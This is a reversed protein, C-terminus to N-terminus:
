KAQKSTVKIQKSTASIAGAINSAAVTCTYKGAAKARLSSSTGAIKKGNRKWSIKVAKAEQFFRAELRDSSLTFSCRLVAHKSKTMKTAPAKAFSPAAILALSAEQGPLKTVGGVTYPTQHTVINSCNFTGNAGATAMGPDGSPSYNWNGWLIAGSLVNFAISSPGSLSEDNQNCTDVTITEHANYPASLNASGVSGNPAATISTWNAWYIKKAKSDIALGWPQHVGDTSGVAIYGHNTGTLDGWMVSSPNDGSAASTWYLRNNYAVIGGIGSGNPIGVTSPIESISAVDRVRKMKKISYTHSTTNFVGVYLWTHTKDEAIGTQYEYGVSTGLDASSYLISACQAAQKCGGMSGVMVGESAVWYIKGQSPVPLTDIVSNVTATTPNTNIDANYHNYDFWNSTVHTTLSTAAVKGHWMDPSNIPTGDQEYTQDPAAWVLLINRTPAASASMAGVMAFSLSMAILLPIRKM